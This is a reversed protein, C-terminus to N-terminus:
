KVDRRVKGNSRSEMLLKLSGASVVPVFGSFDAYFILEEVVSSAGKVCTIDLSAVAEQLRRLFLEEGSVRTGHDELFKVILDCIDEQTYPEVSLRKINEVTECLKELLREENRSPLASVFFVVCAHDCIRKVNRLFETFQTEGQHSAIGSIDLGIINCYENTYVAAADIEAFAQKLQQLSGDLTIEIYDDLGSIFDLVGSEKYMDAMYEILTTRGNGSNLPVIYHRPRLGCRRYVHAAECAKEIEECPTRLGIPKTIEYHKMAIEMGGEESPPM